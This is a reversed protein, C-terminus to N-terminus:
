AKALKCGRHTNTLIDLYVTGGVVSHLRQERQAKQDVGTQKKHSADADQEGVM